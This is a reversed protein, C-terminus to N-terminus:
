TLNEGRMISTAHRVVCSTTSDKRMSWHLGYARVLTSSSESITSSSNKGPISAFHDSLTAVTGLLDRDTIDAYASKKYLQKELPMM